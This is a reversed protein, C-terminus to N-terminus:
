RASSRACRTTSGSSSWVRSPTCSTASSTPRRGCPTPSRSTPSLQSQLSVLETRDRMTTVTGIRSGGSSATRRNFVLVRDAVVAVADEDAPASGDLLAVVQPWGWGPSRSGSPTPRLGLLDLAADNVMTVRGDTGVALVGERISHLLAERHDALRAIEPAGLGRTRRKVVRSVVYTGLVGLLAGLGLFLALDAARRDAAGM